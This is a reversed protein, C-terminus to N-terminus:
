DAKKRKQLQKWLSYGRVAASTVGLLQAWEQCNKGVFRNDLGLIEQMKQEGSLDSRSAIALIRVATKDGIAQVVRQMYQEHNPQEAPQPDGAIDPSERSPEAGADGARQKAWVDLAEASATWLNALQWYHVVAVPYWIEPAQHEEAGFWGQGMGRPYCHIRKAPARFSVAGAELALQHLLYTWRQSEWEEHTGLPTQEGLRRVLGRYCDLSDRQAFFLEYPPGMSPSAQAPICDREGRGMYRVMTALLEPVNVGIMPWPKFSLIAAFTIPPHKAAADAFLERLQSLIAPDVPRNFLHGASLM